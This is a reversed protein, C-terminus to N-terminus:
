AYEIAGSRFPYKELLKSDLRVGLGPATPAKVSGDEVLAEEVLLQRRINDPALAYEVIRANRSAFAVHLNAMFSPGVSAGTHVILGANNAAAVEAVDRCPGIGGCHGADPQVFDLASLALWAPFESAALCEGGAVPIRTMTRLRAYGNANDYRLPEEYFLPEFEEVARAIAAATALSWPERVQVAHSDIALEVQVGLRRRIAALKASEDGAREASSAAHWGKTGPRDRYGTSLKLARFGLDIYTAAQAVANDVPWRALAGSAYLPLREHVPGGLLEVVPRGQIKGALDWMAMEIGSLVSVGAGTRAWWLSRQYLEDFTSGPQTPDLKAHHLIERYYDVVPKVLEPCFYGMVTEGVGSTGDEAIVEILAASRYFSEEWHPDGEWPATLLHARVDTIRMPDITSM